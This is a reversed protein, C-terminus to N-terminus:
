KEEQTIQIRLPWSWLASSRVCVPIRYYKQTSFRCMADNIVRRMSKDGEVGSLVKELLKKICHGYTNQCQLESLCGGKCENGHMCGNCLTNGQLNEMEKDFSKINEELLEELDTDVVTKGEVYSSSLPCISVKGESSIAAISYAGACPLLFSSAVERLDGPLMLIKYYDNIEALKQANLVNRLANEYFEETLSMDSVKGIPMVPVARMFDAGAAKAIRAVEEVDDVNYPTISMGVGCKIEYESLLRVANIVKDYIGSVGRFSDMKDKDAFDISVRVYVLTAYRKLKECCKKDILTGNTLISFSIKESDCVDLIQFFDKHLFPEGGAIIIHAFGLRKADRITKSIIEFDLQGKCDNKKNDCSVGCHKCSLNCKETLSINLAYYSSM